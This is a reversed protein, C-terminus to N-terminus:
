LPLDVSRVELPTFPSISSVHDMLSIRAPISPASNGYFDADTWAQMQVDIQLQGRLQQMVIARQDTWSMQVPESFQWGIVDDWFWNDPDEWSQWDMDDHGDCQWGYEVVAQASAPDVM